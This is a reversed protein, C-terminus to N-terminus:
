LHHTIKHIKYEWKLLNQRFNLKQKSIIRNDFLLQNTSRKINLKQVRNLNYRVPLSRKLNLIDNLLLKSITNPNPNNSSHSINKDNIRYYVCDIDVYEFKFGRNTFELWLPYDELMRYDDICSIIELLVKRTIFVSPATLKNTGLLENFQEKATLSSFYKYYTKDQQITFEQTNEHYKIINCFCAQYQNELLIKMIKSISNNVFWDDGAIAKIYKGKTKKIGSIYNKVIGINKPQEILTIPISGGKQIVWKDIIKLTEDTSYDDCIIIEYNCLNQNKISELTQVITNEQNYTLIIFSIDPMNDVM